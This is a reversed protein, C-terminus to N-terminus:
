RCAGLGDGQGDLTVVFAEDRGSTYYASAAHATHHDVLHIPLGDLDFERLLKKVKQIRSWNFWYAYFLFYRDWRVSKSFISHFIWKPEGQAKFLDELVYRQLDIPKAIALAISTINSRNSKTMEVVKGLSRRPPGDQTTGNHFKIRSLREEEIAALIKGNEVVACGCNHDDYIGLVRM